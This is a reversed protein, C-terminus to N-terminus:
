LNSKQMKKLWEKCASKICDNDANVVQGNIKKQNYYELCNQMAYKIFWVGTYTVKNSLHINQQLNVFAKIFMEDADKKEPINKVLYGYVVPGYKHYLQEFESNNYNNNLTDM